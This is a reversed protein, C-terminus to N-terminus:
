QAAINQLDINVQVLAAVINNVSTEVTNYAGLPDGIWDIGLITDIETNVTGLGTNIAELAAITTDLQIMGGLSQAQEMWIISENIHYRAVTLSNNAYEFKELADVYNTAGFTVQGNKSLREWKSQPM